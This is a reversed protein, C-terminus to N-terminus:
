LHCQLFEPFEPHWQFEYVAMERGFLDVTRSLTGGHHVLSSTDYDDPVQWATGISGMQKRCQRRLMGLNLPLPHLCLAVVVVKRMFEKLLQQV